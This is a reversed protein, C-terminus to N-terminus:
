RQEKIIDALTKGDFLSRLCRPCEWYVLDAQEEDARRLRMERGCDSCQQHLATTVIPTVTMRNEVEALAEQVTVGATVCLQLMTRFNQLNAWTFADLKLVAM